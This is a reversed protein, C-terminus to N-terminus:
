YSVAITIGRMIFEVCPIAVSNGLARYRASDSADSLATWGDPFGQLRECELPTLRRILRRSDAQQCVLDTADKYQRASETSAVDNDHFVDVRQRAYLIGDKESPSGHAADRQEVLPLNNGGTGARASLTPAITHPGTYRADIGHNEYVLPQHGHEQARLTGTIGVTCDMVSGGQDNLCLVSPMCNGSATGKLTPSIKESYGISGAKAGAGASFGAVFTQQKMGPQAQLAGTSEQVQQQGNERRMVYGSVTYAGGHGAFYEAGIKAFDLYPWAEEPFRRDGHLQGAVVVYRGLEEDSRVNPVFTYAELSDSVRLVDDLSGASEADLAGSFIDRQREDMGDIKEALRNLKDFADPDTLGAGKLHKALSPVGSDVGIIQVEGAYRSAADLAAFVEDVEGPTTPLRLPVSEYNDGRALKLTIM